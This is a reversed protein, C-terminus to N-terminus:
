VAEQKKMLEQLQGCEAKVRDREAELQAKEAQWSEKLKLLAELV